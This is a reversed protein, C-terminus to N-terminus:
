WILAVQVQRTVVVIKKIVHNTIWHCHPETTQSGGIGKADTREQGTTQAFDPFSLTLSERHRWLLVAWTSYLGPNVSGLVCHSQAQRRNESDRPRDTQDRFNELITLLAVLEVVEEFVQRHKPCLFYKQAWDSVLACRDHQTRWRRVCLLQGAFEM